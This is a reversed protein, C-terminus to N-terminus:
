QSCTSPGNTEFWENPSSLRHSLVGDDEMIEDPGLGTGDEEDSGAAMQSLKPRKSTPIPSEDEMQM